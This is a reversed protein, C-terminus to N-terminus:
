WSRGDSAGVRAGYSALADGLAGVMMSERERGSAVVFAFRKRAPWIAAPGCCSFDPCCEGPEDLDRNAHQNHWPRGALWALLQWRRTVWQAALEFRTMKRIVGM